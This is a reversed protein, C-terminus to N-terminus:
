NIVSHMSGQRAEGLQELGSDVDKNQQKHNKNKADEAFKQTEGTPIQIPVKDGNTAFCFLLCVIAANLLNIFFETGQVSVSPGGWSDTNFSFQM